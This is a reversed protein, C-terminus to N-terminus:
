SGEPVQFFETLPTNGRLAIKMRHRAAALHRNVTSRSFGTQEAIESLECEEVLQLTLVIRQEDPLNKLASYLETALQQEAGAQAEPHSNQADGWFVWRRRRKSRLYERVVLTVTQMSFGILHEASEIRDLRDLIRLIVDQTIDDTDSSNGLLRGVRRRVLPALEEILRRQSKPDGNALLVFGYAQEADFVTTGPSM